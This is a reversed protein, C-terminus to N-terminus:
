LVLFIELSYPNREASHLPWILLIDARLCQVCLASINLRDNYSQQLPCRVLAHLPPRSALSKDYKSREARGRQHSANNAQRTLTTIMRRVSGRECGDLCCTIQIVLFVARARRVSAAVTRSSSCTACLLQTCRLGRLLGSITRGTIPAAGSVCTTLRPPPSLM